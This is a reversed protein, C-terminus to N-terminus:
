SKRGIRRGGSEKLLSDLLERYAAPPSATAPDESHTEARKKSAGPGNNPVGDPLLAYDAASLEARALRRQAWDSRAVISGFPWTPSSELRENGAANEGPPAQDPPTTSQGVQSPSAANSERGAPIIREVVQPGPQTMLVALLSAAVATIATFAAPWAWTRQRSSQVSQAAASAEGALFMLRDRNVGDARPALSALAAEFAALDSLPEKHNSM